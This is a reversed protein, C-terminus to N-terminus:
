SSTQSPETPCLARHRRLADTHWILDRLFRQAKGSLAPDASQGREDFADDVFSIPLPTPVLTAHLALAIQRLQALCGVGGLGGASVTCLAVAKRAFAGPELHDIANKLAGPVGNKYEPSVILLGDADAIARRFAELEAPLPNAASPRHELIPFRYDALDLLESAVGPTKEIEALLFRAVRLSKRGM